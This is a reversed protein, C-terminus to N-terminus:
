KQRTSNRRLHSSYSAWARGLCRNHLSFVCAQGCQLMGDCERRDVSHALICGDHHSRHSDFISAHCSVDYSPCDTSHLAMSSSAISSFDLHVSKQQAELLRALLQSCQSQGKSKSLTAMLTSEMSNVAATVVTALQIVVLFAAMLLNETASTWMKLDAMSLITVMLM